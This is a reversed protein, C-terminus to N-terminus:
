RGRCPSAASQWSQLRWRRLISRGKQLSRAAMAFILCCGLGTFLLPIANELILGFRRVSTFPGGIFGTIADWPQESVLLIVVFAMTLAILVAMMTKIVRFLLNLQRNSM